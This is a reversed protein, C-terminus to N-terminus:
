PRLHDTGLFKDSASATKCHHDHIQDRNLLSARRIREPFLRWSGQIFKKCLDQVLIKKISVERITTQTINALPIKDPSSERAFM